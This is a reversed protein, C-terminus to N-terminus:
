GRGKSQETAKDGNVAVVLCDGRSRADEPYRVHGVHLLDFVGNTLVVTKGSARSRSCGSSRASIPRLMISRRPM